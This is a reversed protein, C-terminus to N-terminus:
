QPSLLSSVPPKNEQRDAHKDKYYVPRGETLVSSLAFFVSPPQQNSLHAVTVELLPARRCLIFLPEHVLFM